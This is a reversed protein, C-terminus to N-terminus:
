QAFAYALAFGRHENRSLVEPGTVAMAGVALMQAFVLLRHAFDDVTFRNIYFTYGSWAVWLPIFMACFGVFSAFSVKESLSNGMQIFAAVFILDYFLELWTAKKEAHESPVHLQPIHFWRNRM